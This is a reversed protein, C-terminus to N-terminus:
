NCQSLEELIRELVLKTETPFDNRLMWMAFGTDSAVPKGNSKGFAYVVEGKENKTLKGALDVVPELQSAEDLGEATKASLDAYRQLQAGLVDATACADAWASHADGHDQELYFKVAATLDRPEKIKFLNGVDVIPHDRWNWQVGVRYLEEWLMPLDFRRLNYGILARGRIADMVLKATDANFKPCPAVQENTIGHIAIVEDTMRFGPNFYFNLGSVPTGGPIGEYIVVGLNVIRDRVTDLGTAEIDISAWSNM